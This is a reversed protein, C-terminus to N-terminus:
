DLFYAYRAIASMIEPTGIYRLWDHIRGVLSSVEWQEVHSAAGADPLLLGVAGLAEPRSTRDMFRFYRLAFDSCNNILLLREFRQVALGHPQCQNLWTADVASAVLAGSLRPSEPSAEFPCSGDFGGALYHATATAIRAGLSYGILNVKAEKPLQAILMAVWLGERDAREAKQKADRVFGLTTKESPWSWMVFRMPACELGGCKAQRELRRYLAWGHEVTFKENTRYGPLWFNVPDAPDLSSLFTDKSETVWQGKEDLRLFRAKGIDCECDGLCRTDILWIDRACVRTAACQTDQGILNDGPLAFSIILVIASTVFHNLLSKWTATRTPLRYPLLRRRTPSLGFKKYVAVEVLLALLM